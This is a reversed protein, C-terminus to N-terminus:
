NLCKGYANLYSSIGYVNNSSWGKRGDGLYSNMIYGGGNLHTAGVNHGVEHALLVGQSNIDSSSAMFEVGYSNRRCLDGQSACGLPGDMKRSTFLHASVRPIHKMYTDWYNRFDDLLGSGYCGSQHTRMGAYPDNGRSCRVDVASLKLKVCVGQQNFKNSALAVITKIKNITPKFGGSWSCFDATTAIAINLERRRGCGSQALFINSTDNPDFPPIDVDSTHNHSPDIELEEDHDHEDVEVFDGTTFDAVLSTTNEGDFIDILSIRDNTDKALLIEINGDMGSWLTDRTLSEDELSKMDIDNSMIVFNNSLVSIPEVNDLSIERGDITLSNTGSNYEVNIISTRREHNSGYAKMQLQDDEEYIKRNQKVKNSTVNLTRLNSCYSFPFLQIFIILVSSWQM